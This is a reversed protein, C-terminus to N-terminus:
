VDSRSFREAAFDRAMRSVGGFVVGQREPPVSAICRSLTCLGRHSSSHLTKAATNGGTGRLVPLAAALQPCPPIIPSGDALAIGRKFGYIVGSVFPRFADANRKKSNMYPSQCAAIWLAVILGSCRQRFKATRIAAHDDESRQEERAKQSIQQAILGLNHVTDLSPAISEAVCMRLYKRLAAQFLAGPDSMRTDTGPRPRESRDNEPKKKYAPALRFNILKTLVSEAENQLGSCTDRDATNRKCLRSRRDHSESVEEDVCRAGRKPQKAPLKKEKVSFIDTDDFHHAAAFAARSAAIPDIRRQFGGYMNEGCNIDTCCWMADTRSRLHSRPRSVPSHVGPDGSRKGTGGSADYYESVDEPGHEIGTYECVLMRDANPQLYKCFRGKACVHIDGCPLRAVAVGRALLGDDSMHEDDLAEKCTLADTWVADIDVAPAAQQAPEPAPKVVPASTRQRKAKSAGEVNSLDRLSLRPPTHYEIKSVTPPTRIM